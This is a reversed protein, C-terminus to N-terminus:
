MPLLGLNHMFGADEHYWSKPFSLGWDLDLHKPRRIIPRTTTSISFPHLRDQCALDSFTTEVFMARHCSDGLCISCRLAEHMPGAALHLPSEERDRRDNPRAVRDLRMHGSGYTSPIFTEVNGKRIGTGRPMSEEEGM